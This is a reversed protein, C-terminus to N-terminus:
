SLQQTYYKATAPDWILTFWQNIMPTFAQQINGTTLFTPGTIGAGGSLTIVNTDLTVAGNRALARGNLTAGTNITISTLAVIQGIMATTTGLTASSGVLWFVNKALAGGALVVSAAAASIMTTGTRFVFVDTPGGTLTVAGTLQGATAWDYVGPGFSPRTGGSGIVVGPALTETSVLAALANYLTVLDVKAAAAKVDAAHLAGGNTLVGPPFGTIASGPHVGVDGDIMTAGTNTVTTGALAGFSRTAGLPPGAGDASDGDKFIFTLEHYGTAPPTITAIAVSGTLFTLKTKPAIIAASPMIIPKQQQNSQVTSLDQFQLDLSGPM